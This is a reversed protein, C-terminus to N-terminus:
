FNFNLGVSSSLGDPASLGNNILNYQYKLSIQLAVNPNFFYHAGLATNGFTNNGSNPIGQFSHDWNYRSHIINQTLSYAWNGSELFYYRGTLGVRGAKYSESLEGGIIGGLAFKDWFFYRYAVSGDFIVGSFSSYGLNAEPSIESDGQHIKKQFTEDVISGQSTENSNTVKYINFDEALVPNTLAVIASLIFMPKM